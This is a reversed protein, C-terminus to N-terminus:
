LVISYYNNYFDLIANVVAAANIIQTYMYKVHFHM